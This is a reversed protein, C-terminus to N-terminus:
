PARTTPPPLGAAAFEGLPTARGLGDTGVRAALMRVSVGKVLLEPAIEALPTLVFSREHMRPHPLVLRDVNWLLQDYTLVDLDIIRPGWHERRERGLRAELDLCAVLLSLPPHTTGIEVVMNLFDPQEIVGVPKSEYVSSRRVVTIAPDAALGRLAEILHGRRDGLNSGLGLFATKM